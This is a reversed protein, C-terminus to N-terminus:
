KKDIAKNKVSNFNVVRSEDKGIIKRIRSALHPSLTELDEITKNSTFITVLGPNYARFDILDDIRQLQTKTPEQCWFDDLILFDRERMDKLQYQATTAKDDYGQARSCLECLNPFRIFQVLDTEEYKVTDFDTRYAIWGEAPLSQMYAKALAIATTTKGTGPTGFFYFSNKVQKSTAPKVNHFEANIQTNFQPM